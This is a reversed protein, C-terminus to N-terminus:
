GGQSIEGLQGTQSTNVSNRESGLDVQISLSLDVGSPRPCSPTKEDIFYNIYRNGLSSYILKSTYLM